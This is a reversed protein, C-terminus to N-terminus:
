LRFQLYCSGTDAKYPSTYLVNLAANMEEHTYKCGLQLSQTPNYTLGLSAVNFSDYDTETLVQTIGGVTQNYNNALKRRSYSYSTDLAIKSTAQWKGNVLVSNRLRTNSSSTNGFAVANTQPNVLQFDADSNGVDTDRSVQLRVSSKGSLQLNYGLLGTWINGDGGGNSNTHSTRTSSIRADLQSNGSPAWGGSLDIDRRHIKDSTFDGTVPDVSYRPYEARTERWGLRANWLSSPRWRVGINGATQDLDQQAQLSSSHRAKDYSVGGDLSLATVMGIRLHANAGTNTLLDRETVIQQYSPNSRYLSKQQRLALDGSIRNITEWDLKVNGQGGNNNLNDNNKFYNANLQLDATLRGRGLPQNLGAILATTSILDRPHPRGEPLRFVNTDATETQSAGIYYPIPDDAWVASSGAALMACLLVTRPLRPRSSSSSTM